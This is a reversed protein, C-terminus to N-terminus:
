KLADLHQKQRSLLRNLLETFKARNEGPVKAAEALRDELFTMVGLLLARREAKGVGVESAVDGWFLDREELLDFVIEAGKGPDKVMKFLKQISGIRDGASFATGSQRLMDYELKYTARAMAYNGSAFDIVPFTWGDKRLVRKSVGNVLEQESEPLSSGSHGNLGYLVADLLENRAALAMDTETTAWPRWRLDRFGPDRVMTPDAFGLGFNGFENSFM